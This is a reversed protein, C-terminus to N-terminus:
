ITIKQSKNIRKIIKGLKLSVGLREINYSEGSVANYRDKDVFLQNKICRIILDSLYNSKTSTSSKYNGTMIDTYVHTRILMFDNGTINKIMNDVQMRYPIISSINTEEDIKIFQIDENNLKLSMRRINKYLYEMNEKIFSYLVDVERESYSDSSIIIRRYESLNNLFDM